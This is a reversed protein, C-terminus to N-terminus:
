DTFYHGFCLVPGNLYFLPLFGRGHLLSFFTILSGTILLWAIEKSVKKLLYYIGVSFSFIVPTIAYGFKVFEEPTSIGSMGGAYKLNFLFTGYIMDGFAHNALFYIAVLSCVFFSGSSIDPM